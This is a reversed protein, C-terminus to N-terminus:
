LNSERVADSIEEREVIKLGQNNIILLQELQESKINAM